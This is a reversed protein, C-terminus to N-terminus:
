KMGVNIETKAIAVLDNRKELVCLPLIKIGDVTGLVITKRVM